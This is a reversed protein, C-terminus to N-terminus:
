DKLGDTKGSIANTQRKELIVLAIGGLIAGSALAMRWSIPEGLLVIGGVAALVPVSLQVIAAQTAKLAPLAQYWIAYGLGSTLAGSLVAYGVGARDISLENVMLLSLAATIPVARLFNGATVQTPDGAGKGRLSYIGWALGAGLMLLASVLPPAALGPLMLGVLGGLALLFGALQLRALREGRWVGYGIMTAQVAGFLLLAGTAASLRVYAFSFGATYVFLAFASPWNGGVVASRGRWRLLLGLMLAGSILRITTFSAADIATQKLAIRCLLSNGAFALMALATLLVIRAPSM